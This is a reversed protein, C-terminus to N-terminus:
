LRAWDALMARMWDEDSHDRWGALMGDSVPDCGHRLPGDSELIAAVIDETPAHIRSIQAPTPAGWEGVQGSSRDPSGGPFDM